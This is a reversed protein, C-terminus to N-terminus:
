LDINKQHKQIEAKKQKASELAVAMKKSLIEIEDKYLFSLLSNKHKLRM